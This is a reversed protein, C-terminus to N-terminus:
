EELDRKKEEARIFKLADKAYEFAEMQEKHTRHWRAIMLDESTSGVSQGLSIATRTVTWDDYTRLRSQHFKFTELAKVLWKEQQPM